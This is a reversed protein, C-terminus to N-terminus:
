ISAMDGQDIAAEADRLWDRAYHDQTKLKIKPVRLSMSAKVGTSKKKEM